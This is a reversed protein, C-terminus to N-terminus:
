DLVITTATSQRKRAPEDDEPAARKRAAPAPAPAPAGEAEGEEEPAARKRPPGVVAVDDDDDSAPAAPAPAVRPREPVVPVAELAFAADSAPGVMLQVTARVGDEDTLTLMDGVHVGLQALTKPVNDELDMDYLIRPGAAISLADRALGLRDAAGLVDDLRARAPDARVGVYVDHCVACAPNPPAPAFTTFARTARRALSVVRLADWRQALVHLAQMVALGSVVANTTAVAPIINGAIQKAEFRTKTPIAYIHARLNAAAAVFALADEDDKDFAQAGGRAALAAGHRMFADANDSVGLMQQDRLGGAARCYDGRARADALTLPTPRTRRAWMDEMSLLRRIDTDYLKDFIHTLPADKEGAAAAHLEDKLERMRRAERRLNALEAADEGSHEAAALEQEDADADEDAGFLQPFLWSKAWVICHVPTSPTSRITCVPFTTPTPHATCDYCETRRPRIPQVQGLLGASGSEICPVDAAVCMRNVWRRTELNDLASLVVDFSAYFAASFEPAMVNAHHAVITADRNFAAAADRAVLAKSRGIHAKRFLFQRNLNSLDITDLDIIEIHGIGTLVADKLVECGIGGAGVILVRASRVREFADGLVARAAAYRMHM